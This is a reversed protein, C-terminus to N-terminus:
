PDGGFTFSFGVSWLKFSRKFVLGSFSAANQTLIRHMEKPEWASWADFPWRTVASGHLLVLVGVGWMCVNRGQLSGPDECVRVCLNEHIHHQMFVVSCFWQSVVLWLKSASVLSLFWDVNWPQGLFVNSGAVCTCTFQVEMLNQAQQVSRERNM